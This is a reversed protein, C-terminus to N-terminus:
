VSGRVWRPPARSVDVTTVEMSEALGAAVAHAVKETNGWMSEFVVLAEMVSRGEKVGGTTPPGELTLIPTRFRYRCRPAPQRRRTTGWSYGSPRAIRPGTM